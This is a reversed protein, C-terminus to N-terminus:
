GLSRMPLATARVESRSSRAFAGQESTLTRYLIERQILASLVPIDKPASLLDFLRRFADLLEATV